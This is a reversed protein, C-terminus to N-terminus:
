IKQKTQFVYEILYTMLLIVVELVDIWNLQLYITYNKVTYHLEQSHEDILTAQIMYKENSLLLCQTHNSTRGISTLLGIFIKKNLGFM